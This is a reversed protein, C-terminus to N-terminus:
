QLRMEPAFRLELARYSVASIFATFRLEFRLSFRGLGDPQAISAVM